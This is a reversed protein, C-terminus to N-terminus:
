AEIGKNFSNYSSVRFGILSSKQREQIFCLTSLLDGYDGCCCLLL